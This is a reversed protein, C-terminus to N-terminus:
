RHNRARAADALAVILPHPAGPQSRAQPVYLTGFFFPHGSLELVRVQGDTGIGSVVLGRAEFQPRFEPNLGFNCYFPEVSTEVGYIGAARSGPLLHVPHNQGALSCSLPTIVLRPASPNSEAHDADAIGLVGRAFEVVLHQFGGCTGLLPVGQERAFRIAELAGEMNRYPSGPTIIFGAYRALHSAPQHAIQETPLWEWAIPEALHGLAQETAIHTKNAPNRDGVLGIVAPQKPNPIVPEM